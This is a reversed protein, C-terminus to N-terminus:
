AVAPQSAASQSGKIAYNQMRTKNETDPEFWREKDVDWDCKKDNGKDMVHVWLPEFKLTNRGILEKFAGTFRTLSSM